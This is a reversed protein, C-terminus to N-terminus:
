VLRRDSQTIKSACAQSPLSQESGGYDIGALSRTSALDRLGSDPQAFGQKETDAARLVAQDGAILRAASGSFYQFM